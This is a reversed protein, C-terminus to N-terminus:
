NLEDASVIRYASGRWVRWCLHSPGCQTTSPPLPLPFAGYFWRPHQVRSIHPCCPAVLSLEMLIHLSRWPHQGGHGRGVFLCLLWLHQASSWKSAKPAKLVHCGGDIRDVRAEELLMELQEVLPRLGGERKHGKAWSTDIVILPCSLQSRGHCRCMKRFATVAKTQNKTNGTKKKEVRNKYLIWGPNQLSYKMKCLSGWNHNPQRIWSLSRTFRPPKDVQCSRERGYYIQPHPQM